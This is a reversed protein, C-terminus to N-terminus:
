AAGHFLTVYHEALAHADLSQGPRYWQVVGWVADRVLRYRVRPDAPVAFGADAAEITEIWQREITASLENVFHLDPQDALRRFEAQYTRVHFPREDIQALAGRVLADFREMPAAPSTAVRDVEAALDVLFERLVSELIADKSPFYHYLSGSLMEVAEAIDRVTTDAFGRTAFLRASADLIRRRRVKPDERVRGTASREKAM